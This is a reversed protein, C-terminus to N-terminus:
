GRGQQLAAADELLKRVLADVDLVPVPPADPLVVSASLLPHVASSGGGGKMQEQTARMQGDFGSAALGVRRAGGALLLWRPPEGVPLGLLAALDHVAILQGRLGVVGLLSAPSGPLRVVRPMLHLGSLHGLRVTLPTGGVRLRLLAEGPDKQPPPPRSFSSDFSDRLEELRQAARNRSVSM